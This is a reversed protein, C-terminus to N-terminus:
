PAHPPQASCYTGLVLWTICVTLASDKMPPHFALIALSSQPEGQIEVLHLTNNPHPSRPSAAAVFMGIVKMGGLAVHWRGWFRQPDRKLQTWRRGVDLSQGARWVTAVGGHVAACGSCPPSPCCHPVSTGTAGWTEGLFVPCHPCWAPLIFPGPAATVASSSVVTVACQVSMRMRRGRPLLSPTLVVRDKLLVLLSGAGTAHCLEHQCPVGNGSVRKGEVGVDDM